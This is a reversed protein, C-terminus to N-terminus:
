TWSSDQKSQNGRRSQARVCVDVTRRRLRTTESSLFSAVVPRGSRGMEPLLLCVTLEAEQGRKETDGWRINKWGWRMKHNFVYAAMWKMQQPRKNIVAWWAGGCEPGLM